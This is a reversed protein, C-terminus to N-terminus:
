KKLLAHALKGIKELALEINANWLTGTNIRICNEYKGTASFLPGPILSIKHKLAKEYLILADVGKPFEVWILCGGTPTTIKTGEPFCELIKRSFLHM